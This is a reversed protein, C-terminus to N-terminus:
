VPEGTRAKGTRGAKRVAQIAAKSDALVLISGRNSNPRGDAVARAFLKTQAADMITDVSEVPDVGVIREVKEGSSGYAAGTCKRLAQNQLKQM